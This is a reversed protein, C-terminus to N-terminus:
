LKAVIKYDRYIEEQSMWALWPGKCEGMYGPGRRMIHLYQSDKTRHTIEVKMLTGNCDCLYIEREMVITNKDQTWKDPFYWNALEDSVRKLWKM